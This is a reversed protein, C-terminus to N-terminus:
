LRHVLAAHITSDTQQEAHQKHEAAAAAGVGRLTALQQLPRDLAALLQM